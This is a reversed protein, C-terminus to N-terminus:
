NGGEYKYGEGHPLFWLAAFFGYLKALNWKPGATRMALMDPPLFFNRITTWVSSDKVQSLFDSKMDWHPMPVAMTVLSSSHPWACICNNMLLHSSNYQRVFGAEDIEETLDKITNQNSINRVM